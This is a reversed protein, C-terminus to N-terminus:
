AAQSDVFQITSAPIGTAATAYKLATWPITIPVGAEGEVGVQADGFKLRPLYVSIFDATSSTGTKLWMLAEIESENKFADILTLSELFANFSGSVRLKGLIIDAVYDQGVVAPADVNMSCNIDAGTIVGINSGGIRILGNVAAVIGTSTAATPSTFFPSSGGSGTEMDRGTMIAEITAMGTAPLRLNIGSVRCETFFRHLDLDSHRVEVGFKRSVHSSAPVDVSKGITVVNFATDISNDTPAPYVTVERNNSGGLSLVLFNVSNNAAVSMNTFQMVMGRRIGLTHPNGGGFTIKSTANDMVASTLESESLALASVKTGRCWAELFPFYTGPSLEGNISGSVRKVGHRFDVVQRHDTIENAEYTDKALNLSCSVRRLVQASSAGPDSSSTPQTNSTIAGTSYAKYTVTTAVGEGLSM